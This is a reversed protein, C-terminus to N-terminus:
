RFVQFWWSLCSFMLKSVYLCFSLVLSPWVPLLKLSFGTACGWHPLEPSPVSTAGWPRQSQLRPGRLPRVAWLAWTRGSTRLSGWPAAGHTTVMRRWCPPVGARRGAAAPPPAMWRGPWVGTQRSAGPPWVCWRPRAGSCSRVPPPCYRWPPAPIVQPVGILLSSLFCAATLWVAWAKLALRNWQQLLKQWSSNRSRRVNIACPKVERWSAAWACWCLTDDFLFLRFLDLQVPSCIDNVKM